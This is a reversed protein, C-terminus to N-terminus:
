KANKDLGHVNKNEKLCVLIQSGLEPDLGIVMICQIFLVFATPLYRIM